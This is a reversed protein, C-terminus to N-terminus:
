VIAQVFVDDSDVGVGQFEENDQLDGIFEDWGKEGVGGEERVADGDGGEFSDEAELATSPEECFLLEQHYICKM